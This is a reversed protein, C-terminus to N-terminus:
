LLYGKLQMFKIPHKASKQRNCSSHLLQINEDSNQGGLSLPMIHDLHYDDGLLNKCVVCKGKQLKLLKGTLEKTLSGGANIKRARYNERGTRVYEPNCLKYEAVQRKIREANAIYYERNYNPNGDRWAKSSKAVTNANRARSDATQASRCTKCMGIFGDKNRSSVHFQDVGKTDGCKGCLKTRM